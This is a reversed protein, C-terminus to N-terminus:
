FTPGSRATVGPGFCVSLAVEYKAYRNTGRKRMARSWRSPYAVVAMVLGFGSIMLLFLAAVYSGVFQRVEDSNAIGATIISAFLAIGALAAIGGGIRSTLSSRRDERQEAAAASHLKMDVLAHSATVKMVGDSLFTWQGRFDKKMLGPKILIADSEVAGSVTSGRTVAEDVDGLIDRDFQFRIPTGADFTASAIDNRGTSWLYLVAQYPDDVVNGDISVVVSKPRNSTVIPTSALEYWLENKPFRSRRRLWTILTVIPAGVGVIWGIIELEPGM